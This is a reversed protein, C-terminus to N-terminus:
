LISVFVLLKHFFNFTSGHRNRIPSFPVTRFKIVKYFWTGSHSYNHSIETMLVNSNPSSTSDGSSRQRRKVSVGLARGLSSTSVAFLVVYTTPNQLFCLVPDLWMRGYARLGRSPSCIAGIPRPEM